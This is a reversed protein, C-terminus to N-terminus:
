FREGAVSLYHLYRSPSPGNGYLGNLEAIIAEQPTAEDFLSIRIVRDALGHLDEGLEDRHRLDLVTALGIEDALLHRDEPPMFELAGSRYVAGSRFHGGGALPYARVERFNHVGELEPSSSSSRMGVPYGM